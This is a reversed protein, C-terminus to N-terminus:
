YRGEDSVELRETEALVVRVGKVTRFSRDDIDNRHAQYLVSDGTQSNVVRVEVIETADRWSTLMWLAAGAIMVGLAVVAAIKLARKNDNTEITQPGSRPAKRRFMLMVVIIVAITLLIKTIMRM